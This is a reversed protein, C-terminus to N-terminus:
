PSPPAITRSLAASTVRQRAQAADRNMQAVLAEVSAFRAESRLRAIFSVEVDVGYLREGLNQDLVHTELTAQGDQVFTPNRGLSTVSPWVTGYDESTPDWVTLATAYIGLPPLYSAGYDINATPYGIARGRKAGHVVRGGASHWRGLMDGAREVDGQDLARRINTSSLKEDGGDLVPAVVEVAIGHPELLTALRAPDGARKAGFRFDDGVVVTHPRLGDTLFNQVFAEPSLQSLSRDFPLLVLDDLGLSAAVRQRQTPTHLLKPAREPALVALPHPEFTVMAVREAVSAAREFLAQHGRHLGDFAGMCAATHPPLPDANRQVSLM